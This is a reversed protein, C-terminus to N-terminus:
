LGNRQLVVINCRRKIKQSLFLNLDSYPDYFEPSEDVASLFESLPDEKSKKKNNIAISATVFKSSSSWFNDSSPNPTKTGSM